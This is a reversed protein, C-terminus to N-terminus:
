CELCLREKIEDDDYSHHLLGENSYWEIKGGSWTEEVAYDLSFYLPLNNESLYKSMYEFWKDPAHDLTVFELSFYNDDHYALINEHSQEWTTGWNQKKWDDYNNIDSGLCKSLHINADESLINFITQVSDDIPEYENRVCDQLCYEISKDQTFYPSASLYQQLKAKTTEDLLNPMRMQTEHLFLHPKVLGIREDYPTEVEYYEFDDFHSFDARVGVAIEPAPVTDSFWIELSYPNNTNLERGDYIVKLFDRLEQKPGKIELRNVSYVATTSM